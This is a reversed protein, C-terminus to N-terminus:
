SPSLQVKETPSVVRLAVEKKRMNVRRGGVKVAVEVKRVAQTEIVRTGVGEVGVAVKTTKVEVAEVVKKKM